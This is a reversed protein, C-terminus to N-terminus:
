LKTLKEVLNQFKVVKLFNKGPIKNKNVLVFILRYHLNDVGLNEVNVAHIFFLLRFKYM